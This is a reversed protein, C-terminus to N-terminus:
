SEKQKKLMINNLFLLHRQIKNITNTTIAMGEIKKYILYIIGFDLKKLEQEKFSRIMQITKTQLSAVSSLFKKADFDYERLISVDSLSLAIEGFYTYTHPNGFRLIHCCRDSCYVFPATQYKNCFNAIFIHHENFLIHSIHHCVDWAQENINKIYRWVLVLSNSEKNHYSSPLICNSSQFILMIDNLAQCIMSQDQLIFELAFYHSM